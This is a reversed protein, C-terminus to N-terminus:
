RRSIAGLDLTPLTRPRGFFDVSLYEEITAGAFSANGALAAPEGYSWALVPSDPGLGYPMGSDVIFHPPGGVNGNVGTLGAVDFLNFSATLYGAFDGSVDEGNGWFINGIAVVQADGQARFGEDCGVITNNILLARAGDKYGIAHVARELINNIVLVESNGGGTLGGGNAAGEGGVFDHVYNGAIVGKCGDLDIGDDEGGLFENSVIRPVHPDDCPGLDLVDRYGLRKGFINRLLIAASTEGHVAEGQIEEDPTEVGIRSDHLFLGDADEFRLALPEQGVWSDLRCADVEIPAADTGEVSLLVHGFAMVCSHLESRRGTLRVTDFAEAAGRGLISAPAEENGLAYLQGQVDLAVGAGLVLTAGPQLVLISGPPVRVDTNAQYPASATLLTVGELLPPLEAPAADAMANLSAASFTSLSLEGNEYARVLDAIPTSGLEVPPAIPAPGLDGLPPDAAERRASGEEDGRGNGTSGVGGGSERGASCSLAFGGLLWGLAM